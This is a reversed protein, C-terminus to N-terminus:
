RLDPWNAKDDLSAILEDEANTDFVKASRLLWFRLALALLVAGVASGGFTMGAVKLREDKIPKPDYAAYRTIATKSDRGLTRDLNLQYGMYARGLSELVNVILVNDEGTYTLELTGPENGASRITM